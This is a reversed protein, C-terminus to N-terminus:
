VSVHISHVSVGLEKIRKWIWMYSMVWPKLPSRLGNKKKTRVFRVDSAGESYLLSLGLGRRAQLQNQTQLDYITIHDLPLVIHAWDNELLTLDRLCSPKILPFLRLFVNAPSFQYLFLQPCPLICPSCAGSYGFPRFESLFYYWWDRRPDVMLWCGVLPVQRFIDDGHFM